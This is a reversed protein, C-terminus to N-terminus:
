GCPPRRVATAPETKLPRSRPKRKLALNATAVTVERSGWGLHNIRRHHGSPPTSARCFPVPLRIMERRVPISILTILNRAKVCLSHFRLFDLRWGGRIRILRRCSEVRGSVAEAMFASWKGSFRWSNRDDEGFPSVGHAVVGGMMGGHLGWGWGLAGEDCVASGPALVLDPADFVAQAGEGGEFVLECLEVLASVGPEGTGVDGAEVAVGSVVPVGGCRGVEGELVDGVDLLVSEGVLCRPRRLGPRWAVRRSVGWGGARAFVPPPGGAVGDQSRPWAGFAQVREVFAEHLPSPITTRCAGRFSVLWLCVVQGVPIVIVDGVVVM